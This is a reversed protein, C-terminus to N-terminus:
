SPEWPQKVRKPQEVEGRERKLCDRCVCCNSFKHCREPQPSLLRMDRLGSLTAVALALRPNDPPADTSL